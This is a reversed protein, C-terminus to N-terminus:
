GDRRVAANSTGTLDVRTGSFTDEFTWGVPACPNGSGTAQWVLTVPDTQDSTVDIAWTQPFVDERFDWLLLEHDALLPSAVVGADL